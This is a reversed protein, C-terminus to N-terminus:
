RNFPTESIWHFGRSTLLYDHPVLRELRVSIKAGRITAEIQLHDDDPHAYHFAIPGTPHEPPGYESSPTWTMTGHPEDFAVTYLDSYGGDLLHWRAYIPDGAEIKIRAWRDKDDLCPREDQGDRQFSTVQWYGDYWTHPRAPEGQDGHVTMFVILAISGYKAITRAIRMWRRPLLYDRMPPPTTPRHLVLLNLLRGADPAILWACMVLYHVSNIKVCVDYCFNLLVINVLVTALVLAGLLTTRRWLLLMSGLVEAAGSFVQYTPSSGMFTWLLGMPSSNGYHEDLRRLGPAPFQHCSLKAVGYGLLTFALAYRVIVRLVARLRDEHARRRDLATWLAAGLLALWAICFISVWDCIKDGSGNSATAFDGLGFVAEGVWHVLVYWGRLVPRVMWDFDETAQAYIAFLGFYVFAFRLAYARAVDPRPPSPRELPENM